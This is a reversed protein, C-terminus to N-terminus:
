FEEWKELTTEPDAFDPLKIGDETVELCLEKAEAIAQQRFRLMQWKAQLFACKSGITIPKSKQVIPPALAQRSVEARETLTECYKV